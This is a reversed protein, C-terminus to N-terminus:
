MYDVESYGAATVLDIIKRRDKKSVEIVDDRCYWHARERSFTKKDHDVGLYYRNGNRDRNTSYEIIM